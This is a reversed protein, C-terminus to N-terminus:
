ISPSKIAEFISISISSTDIPFDIEDESQSVIKNHLTRYQKEM